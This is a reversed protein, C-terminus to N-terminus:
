ERGGGERERESREDTELWNAGRGDKERERTGLARDWERKSCPPLFSGGEELSVNVITRVERRNRYLHEHRHKWGEGDDREEGGGNRGRKKENRQLARSCVRSFVRSFRQLLPLCSGHVIDSITRPGAAILTM